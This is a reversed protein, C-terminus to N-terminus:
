LCCLRGGGRPAGDRNHPWWCTVSGGQPQLPAWSLNPLAPLPCLLHCGRWLVAHWKTLCCFLFILGLDKIIYCFLSFVLHFSM